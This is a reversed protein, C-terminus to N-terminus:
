RAQEVDRQSAARAALLSGQRAEERRAQELTAAAKSAADAASLTDGAAGALDTTEMEFLTDGARVEEGLRAQVRVVRGSHPPFVPTARDENVAIRGEALRETRLERLTVAEVRLARTEADSLRFEGPGLAAAPAPAAAEGRGPAGAGAIRDRHLVAGGAAVALVAAPVWVWPRPRRPGPSAPAAAPSAGGGPPPEDPRADPVSLAERVPAKAAADPRHPPQPIMNMAATADGLATTERPRHLRSLAALM